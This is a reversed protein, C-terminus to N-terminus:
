LLTMGKRVAYMITNLREKNNKNEMDTSNLHLQYTPAYWEIFDNYPIDNPIEKNLIVSTEYAWTRAM